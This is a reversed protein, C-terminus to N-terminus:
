ACAGTPKSAPNYTITVNPTVTISSAATFVSLYSACGEALHFDYTVSTVSLWSMVAGSHHMCYNTSGRGSEICQQANAWQQLTLISVSMPGTSTAQLHFTFTDPINGALYWTKDKIQSPTNVM